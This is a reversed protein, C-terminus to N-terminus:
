INLFHYILYEASIKTVEGFYEGAKLCGIDLISSTEQHGLPSYQPRGDKGRGKKLKMMESTAIGPMFAMEGTGEVETNSLLKKERDIIHRAWKEFKAKYYANGEGVIGPMKQDGSLGMKWLKHDKEGFEIAKAEQEKYCLLLNSITLILICSEIICKCIIFYKLLVYKTHSQFYARGIRKIYVLIQLTCCLM